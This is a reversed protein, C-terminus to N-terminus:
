LRNPKRRSNRVTTVKFPIGDKATNKERWVGEGGGEPEYWDRGDPAIYIVPNNRCYAYPSIFPCKEFVPYISPNAEYNCVEEAEERNSLSKNTVRYRVRNKMKCLYEKKRKQPPLQLRENKLM